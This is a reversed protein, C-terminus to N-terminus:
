HETVAVGEGSVSFAIFHGIDRWEDDATAAARLWASLRPLAAARLTAEVADRIEGPVAFVTVWATGAPFTADMGERSARGTGWYDAQLVRDGRPRRQFAVRSVIQPAGALLTADLDHRDLPYRLDSPLPQASFEYDM